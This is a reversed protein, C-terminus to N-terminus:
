RMNLKWGTDTKILEIKDNEEEAKDKGNEKAVVKFEVTATKGDSSITEKTVEFKEITAGKAKAIIDEKFMDTLMKKTEADMEDLYMLSIVEDANGAAAARLYKEVVAGPTDGGGCSTLGLCLVFAMMLISFVSKKM